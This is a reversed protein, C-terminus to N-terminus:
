KLINIVYDKSKNYVEDDVEAILYTGEDKYEEELIRGNRHLFSVVDGKAYPIIYEAKKYAM